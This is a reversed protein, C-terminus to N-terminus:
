SNTQVVNAKYAAWDGCAYGRSYEQFLPHDSPILYSSADFVGMEHEEFAAVVAWDPSLDYTITRDDLLNIVITKTQSEMGYSWNLSRPQGDAATVLISTYQRNIM